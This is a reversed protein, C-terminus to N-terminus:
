RDNQEIGSLRIEQEDIPMVYKKDNPLLQYTQSNLTRSLTVAFRNDKNLRRLDSWRIGRFALEKRRENLVLRLVETANNSILPAFGPKYRHRLLFNLDSLSANLEGRRANSEARILYLEDTALGGFLNRDGSYHGRFTVGGSVARFLLTRRYDDSTYSNYLEPEVILKSITFIGFLFTSHFIVEPNFRVFPYTPSSNVKSYDVLESQIKLASDAYLGAQEYLEMSLYTRALLAFAAQKSPRTKFLPATELLSAATQLDQIVQDYVLRLTARKVVVNVDYDLRLPLGLDTSATTSNYAKCFLQTLHYYDFARFFLASGKVNDWDKQRGSIPKVKQIGNLIVNANLIRRYSNQWGTSSETGYFDKTDAWVYAMKEQTTFLSQWSSYTIYFDGASIEGLSSSQSVNFTQSSNDLLAQFDEISSPVILSEDPKAELWKDSCSSLIVVTLAAFILTMKGKMKM